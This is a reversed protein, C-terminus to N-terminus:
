AYFDNQATKHSNCESNESNFDKNKMFVFNLFVFPSLQPKVRNSNKIKLFVFPSRQPKVRNSNKNKLFVIPSLLKKLRNSNLSKLYDVPFSQVIHVASDVTLRQVIRQVASDVTLRQM